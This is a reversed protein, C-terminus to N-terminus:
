RDDRLGRDAADARQLGGRRDNGIEAVLLDDVARPLNELAIAGLAEGVPELGLGLHQEGVGGHAVCVLRQQRGTHASVIDGLDGAGIRAAHRVQERELAPASRGEIDGHAEEVFVRPLPEVLDALARRVQQGLNSSRPEM